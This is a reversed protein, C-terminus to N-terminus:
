FLLWELLPMSVFAFLVGFAISSIALNTDLKAKLIMAAALAMTPMASEFIAVIASPTIATNTLKLIGVFILPALLMKCVIVVATSKYSAKIGNFGLGLGIAFLAVPTAAGGFLRIPEFIFEPLHVFKFAFGLALAIFPPFTLMKKVNQALSAKQESALAVIFPAFLSMPLATAIADYFIVESIFQPDKYLTQIIPIGIFLTNGFSSLLFMSVLTAKTFGFLRGLGVSVLGALLCSFLGVLVFVILSFDFSLHYTREFILCPLAFVITFDLFARSQKNRLVGIRKAAYGGMLLTLITFLPMFILMAKRKENFHANSSLAGKSLRFKCSKVKFFGQKFLNKFKLCKAKFNLLSKLM